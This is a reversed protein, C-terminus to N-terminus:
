SGRREELIGEAVLQRRIALWDAELQESTLSVQRRLCEDSCCRLALYWQVCEHCLALHDRLKEVAEHDLTGAAYAAVTEPDPHPGIGARAQSAVRSLM